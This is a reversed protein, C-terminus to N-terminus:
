VIHGVAFTASCICCSCSKVVKLNWCGCQSWSLRCVGWESRFNGLLIVERVVYLLSTLVLATHDAIDSCCSNKKSSQTV